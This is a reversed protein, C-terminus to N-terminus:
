LTEATLTKTVKVIDIVNSSKPLMHTRHIAAELKNASYKHHKNIYDRFELSGGDMGFYLRKSAIYAVGEDAKLYHLLINAIAPYNEKRYICESAVIIACSNSYKELFTDSFSPIDEWLCALLDVKNQLWVDENCAENSLRKLTETDQLVEVSMTTLKAVSGYKHKEGEDSKLIVNINSSTTPKVSNAAGIKHVHDATIKDTEICNVVKSLPNLRRIVATM